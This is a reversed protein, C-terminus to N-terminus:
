QLHMANLNESIVTLCRLLVRLDEKTLSKTANMVVEDIEKALREGVSRGMSTLILPSRYKKAASIETYLYGNKELDSLSRSIASKDEGCITCLEAATMPGFTFLYYLCSVYPGKLDFGSMKEQKLRKISRNLRNVLVTFTEFGTSM